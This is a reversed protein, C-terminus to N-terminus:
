AQTMRRKREFLLQGVAFQSRSPQPAIASAAGTVDSPDFESRMRRQFRQGEFDIFYVSGDEFIPGDHHELLKLFDTFGSTDIAASNLTASDRQV